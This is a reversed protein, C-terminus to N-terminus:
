TRKLECLTEVHTTQPFLDFGQVRELKYGGEGCIRQVDRALTAPNCSIYLIRLPKVVNRIDSVLQKEMGVRPPDTIVVEWQRGSIKATKPMGKKLNASLFMGKNGPRADVGLVHGAIKAAPRTFAGAGCFLDLVSNARDSALWDMTTRILTDALVDHVQFFHDYSVTYPVGAMRFDLTNEGYLTEWKDKWDTQIGLGTVSPESEAWQIWGEADDTLEGRLLVLVQDRAGNTRLMIRHLNHRPFAQLRAQLTPILQGLIPAGVPCDNVAVLGDRGRYGMEPGEVSFDLKNRSGFPEPSPCVGLFNVEECGGLRKLAETIKQGKLQLQEEYPLPQLQCGPCSDFHPCGAAIRNASPTVIRTVVGGKGEEIFEVEDGPIVPGELWIKRGDGCRGLMREDGIDLIHATQISM